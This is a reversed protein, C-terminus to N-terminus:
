NLQLKKRNNSMKVQNFYHHKDMSFYNDPRFINVKTILFYIWHLYTDTDKIHQYVWNRGELSDNEMLYYGILRYKEILKILKFPDGINKRNIFPYNKYTHKLTFSLKDFYYIDFEEREKKDLLNLHELAMVGKFGKVKDNLYSNPFSRVEHNYIPKLMAKQYMSYIFDDIDKLVQFVWPKNELLDTFAIIERTVERHEDLQKSPNPFIILNNVHIYGFQNKFFHKEKLELEM